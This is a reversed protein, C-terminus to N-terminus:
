RGGYQIEREQEDVKRRGRRGNMATEGDGDRVDREATQRFSCNQTNTITEGTCQVAPAAEGASREAGVEAHTYGKIAGMVAKEEKQINIQTKNKVRGPRGGREGEMERNVLEKEGKMERGGDGVSGDGGRWERKRKCRRLMSFVLERIVKRGSFRQICSRPEDGSGEGTAM